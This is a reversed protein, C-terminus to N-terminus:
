FETDEKSLVTMYERSNGTVIRVYDGKVPAPNGEKIYHVWWNVCDSDDLDQVLVGINLCGLRSTRIKTVALVKGVVIENDEVETTPRSITQNTM